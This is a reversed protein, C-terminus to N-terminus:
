FWEDSTYIVIDGEETYAYYNIHNVAKTGTIGKVASHLEVRAYTHDGWLNANNLTTRIQEPLAKIEDHTIAAGIRAVHIQLGTKGDTGIVAFCVYGNHKDDKYYFVVVNEVPGDQVDLGFFQVNTNFPIHYKNTYFPTNITTKDGKKYQNRDTDMFRVFESPNSGSIKAYKDIYAKSFDSGHSKMNRMGPSSEILDLYSRELFTVFSFHEVIKSSGDQYKIVGVGDGNYDMITNKNLRVQSDAASVTSVLLAILVFGIFLLIKKM